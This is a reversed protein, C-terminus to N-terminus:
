GASNLLFAEPPKVEWENPPVEKVLTPWSAQFAEQSEWFTFGMLTGKEPDKFIDSVFLIGPQKKMLEDLQRMQQVGLEEQEPRPYHISYFVFM